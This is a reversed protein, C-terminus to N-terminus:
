GMATDSYGVHGAADIGYASINGGGLTGLDQMAGGKWLSAHTSGAATDSYGM